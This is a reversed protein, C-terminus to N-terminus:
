IINSLLSSGVSLLVDVHIIDIKYKRTIKIVYLMAKIVDYLTSLPRLKKHYKYFKWNIGAKSLRKNIVIQLEKNKLNNGKEFSFIHIKFEDSLKELYSIIQSIGLPESIGDWSIYLINGKNKNISLSNFEM